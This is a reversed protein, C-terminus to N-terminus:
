IGIHQWFAPYSKNVVERDKIDINFGSLKLVAAAMAMRHDFDPNFELPQNKDLTSSKGEIVMGDELVECQFGALKLLEATKQIRNTEKHILQSAGFLRSRGDALACLVALVPFLDPSEQLDAELGSWATQKQIQFISGNEISAIGMKKFLQLFVKDPQLSQSNWNTVRVSGGVVAAAALSFLSSIDLEPVLNTTIQQGTPIFLSLQDETESIEIVMGSQKLMEITMQLYPRSLIPKKIQIQLDDPLQWASLLLGTVFQTSQQGDCQISEPVRWGGSAIRIYEDAREAKVGLQKLIDLMPQQPREMLRPHAEVFYEGKKRSLFFCFFRLSTGGLGFQFFNAQGVRALAEQLELVDDSEFLDDAPLLFAQNWAHLVQARNLWSKSLLMAGDYQFM